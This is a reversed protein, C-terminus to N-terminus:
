KQQPKRPGKKSDGDKRPPRNGAPRPKREPEVYGEPKEILAKRSLRLKGTKADIELLKVNVIDGLQLVDEVKEVKRWDLESIHLLGEKGPLIEVFAGFEVISVVKGEYCEGVEPVTTIAKIRALAADMGEKNEGFIDIIGITNGEADKNEQANVAPAAVMSVVALAMAGFFFKVTKM